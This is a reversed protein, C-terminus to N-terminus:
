AIGLGVRDVNWESKEGRKVNTDYSRIHPNFGHDLLHVSSGRVIGTVKM